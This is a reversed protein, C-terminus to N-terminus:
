LSIKNFPGEVEFTYSKKKYRQSSFYLRRGSPDFAPGTLESGKHDPLRLIPFAKGNKSIGCIELNGGDEAAMVLGNKSVTVNDPDKLVGTKNKKYLVECTNNRIDYTWIEHSGTTAFYVKGDHYWAGEGRKFKTYNVKKNATRKMLSNMLKNKGPEKYKAIQNPVDNWKITNDIKIQMVQFKGKEKALQGMEIIKNEPIFRYFGGEKTDETQYIISTRPDVAAAEHTFMGLSQIKIQKKKGFPDCEWTYGGVDEECTLWTNWPTLGGACNMNTNKCIQYGDVIKANRNFRIAGVGGERHGKESNSVYIWGGDNTKFTAGGDAHRHWKFKKFAKIRDGSVAIIRSKFGKMLMLGNKDPELLSYSLSSSAAHVSTNIAWVPLNAGALFVGFSGLSKLFKRKSKNKM